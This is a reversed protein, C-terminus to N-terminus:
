SRTILEQDSCRSSPGPRSFLHSVQRYTDEVICYMWLSFDDFNTIM